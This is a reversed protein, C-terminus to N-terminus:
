VSRETHSTTTCYLITRDIRNYLRGHRGTEKDTHERIRTKGNIQVHIIQVHGFHNQGVTDEEKVM